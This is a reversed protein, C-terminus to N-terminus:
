SSPSSKKGLIQEVTPLIQAAWIEYGKASPHLFDPMVERSITGDPQLFKDGFDLYTVGPQKGIPRITANISKIRARMPDDPFEGRPLIGQLLIEAKPYLARYQDVVAKVGKAIQANTHDRWKLNNTGIMLVVLKPNLGKGQGKALRWLVTETCDGAIGFNAVEYAAFNKEWVERGKTPFWDTISDGDFILTAEGATTRDLNAQFHKEWDPGTRPAPIAASNEARVGGSHIALVSLLLPLVKM